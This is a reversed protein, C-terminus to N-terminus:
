IKKVAEGFKEYNAAVGDDLDFEIQQKALEKLIEDYEKCEIQAKRYDELKKQEPRSLNAENSAMKDIQDSLWSQYKHLYNQRIKQVTYKDMRHMYTLVKFAGNRSSFLWYIPRKRYMRKHYDWFKQVLFKELDMGLCKQLFNLNETLTDEGWVVRIFEKIRHIIDDSFPSDIGMVPVIANEDISWKRGEYTYSGLEEESPNPHAVNLGPKDLRYRGMLCGFAYSILQNMVEDRNIPLEIADNGKQRFIPELRELANRDLEEQLITIDKLPVEPTIEDELNYVKILIRNIEEEHEHVEFFNLTATDKWDTYSNELSSRKEILPLKKFDWSYERSNWDEKSIEILNKILTTLEDAPKIFPLDAINGAQYNLTPNYINLFFQAVKSNFYGTLLIIDAQNPYCASGGADCLFGKESYRATFGGAAVASWSINPKFIYDLNYNSSITRSGSPHMTNRILYGDNEWNVVYENNGYWRRFDGGKKYPFWKYKSKSASERNEFLRGCKDDSIEFWYKTFTANDGTVMGKRPNTINKVRRQKSFIQIANESVWYAIPNGPIKSFNVQSINPYYLKLGKKSGDKPIESIGNEGRYDTFNYKYAEKEKSYLFLKEIDSYNIHQFNREHLRFYTGKADESYRKSLVFAVSGFDIGFIGRGMHLLSDFKYNNIYEERLKQFSSLFLWSPLNILAFKSNEKTFDPIVEMFVTMLDSKTTPYHKNVYEKLDGNMSKQGMYPPNAVVSNYKEALLIAVEVYQKLKNWIAQEALGLTAKDAKRQWDIFRDKLFGAAEESLDWKLASGINKGKKLLEVANKVENLYQDQENLFSLLEENSFHDPEPFSNM